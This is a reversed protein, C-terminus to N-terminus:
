QIVSESAASNGLYGGGRRLGTNGARSKELGDEVVSAFM